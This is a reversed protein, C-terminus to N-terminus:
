WAAGFNPPVGMQPSSQLFIMVSTLEAFVCARLFIGIRMGRTLVGLDVLKDMASRVFPANHKRYDSIFHYRKTPSGPPAIVIVLYSCSRQNLFEQRSVSSPMVAINSIFDSTARTLPIDGQKCADVMQEVGRYHAMQVSYHKDMVTTARVIHNYFANGDLNYHHRRISVGKAESHAEYLETYIKEQHLSFATQCKTAYM